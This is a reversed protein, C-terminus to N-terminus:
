QGPFRVSRSGVGGARAPENKPRKDPVAALCSALAPCRLPRLPNAQGNLM